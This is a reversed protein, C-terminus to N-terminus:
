NRKKCGICNCCKRNCKKSNLKSLLTMLSIIIVIGVVIGWLWISGYLRYITLCMHVIECLLYTGCLQVLVCVFTRKTGIEKSMVSITAVCPMYTLCFLLLVVAQTQSLAIVSSKALLSAGVGQIGVCNIVAITSVILEKALVGVLISAVIGWNNLGLPAFIPALVGSISQLISTEDQYILRFSFSQLFWLIVSFSMVVVGARLLFSKVNSVINKITNKLTPVKLSAFEMVFNSKMPYVKNLIYSVGIVILISLLYLAYIILFSGGFFAGCIIAFFPMKASCSIIPTLMATRIRNNGELNRSTMVATTSCGSSILLCFISKGSLGVKGLIDEFLFAVRSMYGSDELISLFLYLLAIQPLFSVVNCIGNNVSEILSLVGDPSSALLRPIVSLLRYTGIRTCDCLYKGVSAYTVFSVLLLLGFFLPIAVFKNLLLKDIRSTGFTSTSYSCKDLLESIYKYRLCSIYDQRNSIDKTLEGIISNQSDSLCLSQIVEQNQEIIAIACYYKNKHVIDANTSIVKAVSQIVRDQIYPPLFKPASIEKLLKKCDKSDKANVVACDLGTMTSFKDIDLSAKKSTRNIALRISDGREWLQLTLYLNRALNSMDVINIIDEVRSIYDSTVKEEPSYPILSYTGPLDVLSIKVGGVLIVKSKSDVTVGQWNGVHESSKTLSNFLTTKGTNPNGVLVIERM